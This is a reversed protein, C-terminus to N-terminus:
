VKLTWRRWRKIGELSVLPGSGAGAGALGEPATDAVGLGEVRKGREGCM